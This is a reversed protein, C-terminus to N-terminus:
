HSAQLEQLAKRAARTLNEDGKTLIEKVPEIAKSNGMKGLTECIAIQEVLYGHSLAKTLAKLVEDTRYDALGKIAECRVGMNSDSLCAILAQQVDDGVLGSIANVSAMRVDPKEDNLGNILANKAKAEGSRGLVEVAAKRVQWSQDQLKQKLHEFVEHDKLGELSYVTSTRVEPSRHTLLPLLHVKRKPSDIMALAQAAKKVQCTTEKILSVLPEVASEDGIKGLSIAVACRVGEEPDGLLKTLDAVARTDGIEGLAQAASQRVQHDTHGLLQCLRDVAKRSRINGLIETMRALQGPQARDLASLLPEVTNEKLKELSLQSALAVEEVPDELLLILRPVAKLYGMEGLIAAASKRIEADMDVLLNAVLEMKDERALHEYVNIGTKERILRLNKIVVGTLPSNQQHDLLTLLFDVGQTKGIQGLANVVAYLLLLDEDPSVRILSEVARADAIRALSEVAICKMWIQDSSEVVRILSEVAKPDQMFGLAEAAASAVNINPDDLTSILPEISEPDGILGLSDAAFKRIDHDESKLLPILHKVSKRGLGQLLEMAVNRVNVEPSALLPVLAKVTRDGGIEMLAEAVAEQVAKNDSLSAVLPEVADEVQLQGLEQAASRRVSSEPDNLKEVLEAMRDQIAIM